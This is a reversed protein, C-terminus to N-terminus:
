GMVYTVSGSINSDRNSWASGYNYVVFAGNASNIYYRLDVGSSTSSPAHVTWVVDAAPRWGVPLTTITNNGAAVTRPNWIMCHIVGSRKKFTVTTGGWSVTYSRLVFMDLIKALLAKLDLM